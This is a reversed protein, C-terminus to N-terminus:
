EVFFSYLSGMMVGGMYSRLWCVVLSIFKGESRLKLCFLDCLCFIGFFCVKEVKAVTKAFIRNEGSKVCFVCM